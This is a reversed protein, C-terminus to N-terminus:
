SDRAHKHIYFLRLVALMLRRGRSFRVHALDEEEDGGAKPSTGRMRCRGAVALRDGGGVDDAGAALRDIRHNEPDEDRERMRTADHENSHQCREARAPQTRLPDLGVQRNRNSEHHNREAQPHQPGLPVQEGERHALRAGRRAPGDAIVRVIVRVVVRVLMTLALVEAKRAATEFRGARETRAILQEVWERYFRVDNAIRVPRRGVNVYIPSTHAFAMTDNLVLRHRPGLARLAIWSSREIRLRRTFEFANKGALSSSVVPQGNVILDLSDLPTQSAVSARVTVERASTTQIEDGPLKDDVKLTLTPGNSAFSRGNRFADLWSAYDFRPGALVYVRGGGAIYHDAVNTFADTGASIPV